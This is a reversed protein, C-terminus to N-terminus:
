LLSSLAVSNAPRRLRDVFDTVTNKLLQRTLPVLEPSEDLVSGGEDDPHDQVAHPALEVFLWDKGEPVTDMGVGGFTLLLAGDRANLWLQGGCWFIRDLEHVALRDILALMSETSIFNM